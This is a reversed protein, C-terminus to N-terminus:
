GQQGRAGRLGLVAMAGALGIGALVLPTELPDWGSPVLRQRVLREGLSGAVMVAGLLGLGQASRRGRRGAVAATM